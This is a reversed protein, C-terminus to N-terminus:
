QMGVNGKFDLGVTVQKGNHQAKGRWIGSEDKALGTINSFGVSEIRSKAQGETFSNAGRELQSLAVPATARGDTGTGAGSAAPERVDSNPAPNKAAPNGRSDETKAAPVDSNPSKTTQAAASGVGLALALPVALLARM